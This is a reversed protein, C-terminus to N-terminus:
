ELPETVKAPHNPRSLQIRGDGIVTIRYGEYVFEFTQGPSREATGSRHSFLTNLADPDVVEYIPALEIPSQGDVRAVLDVIAEIPGTALDFSETYTRKTASRLSPPTSDDASDM